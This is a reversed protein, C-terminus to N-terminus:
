GVGPAEGYAATRAARLRDLDAQKRQV